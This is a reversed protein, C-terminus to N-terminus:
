WAREFFMWTAYFVVPISLMLQVWNWYKWPMIRLLPNDTIMESMAIIFIPVTFAVAIWLKRLLRKYNADEEEEDAELPVLDMGCIPCAGPEDRIIEPHMPCTYQVTRKADPMRVLDMGCVPCSGPADYTKDGECHMPCYYVGGKQSGDKSVNKHHGDGGSHHHDHHHHHHGSGHAAKEGPVSITYHGGADDMARQLKDLAVHNSMTVVAQGANLDVAVDTVGEVGRLATEVKQRCGQCSMGSITYTHKMKGFETRHLNCGIQFPANCLE